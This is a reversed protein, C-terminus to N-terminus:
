AIRKLIAKKIALVEDVRDSILKIDDDNRDVKIIGLKPNDFEPHFSVFHWFKYGTVWISFQIQWYVHKVTPSSSSSCLKKLEEGNNVELFAVHVGGNEPCKIELGTELKPVLGDPTCGINNNWEPVIFDSEIVELGTYDAYQGRAEPEWMNGWDIASSYVDKKRCGREEAILERAYTYGSQGLGRAGTIRYAQSATIRGLRAIKQEETLM